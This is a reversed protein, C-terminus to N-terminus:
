PSYYMQEFLTPFYDVIQCSEQAALGGMFYAQLM